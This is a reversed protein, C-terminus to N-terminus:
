ELVEKYVYNKVRNLNNDELYVKLSDWSCVRSLAVYLQGHNFINKRLDVAVKEFTRGQSKNITMAFALKVPFQRRKFTFPYINECYLTIRNLFIIEGIKNGSLIECRLLNNELNLVLLRTDNCLGENINLNRILMIVTYKRLRLIHPPLCTPNLSNLYEKTIAEYIDENDIIELTNWVQIFEKQQKM